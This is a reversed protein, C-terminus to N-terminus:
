VGYAAKQINHLSNASLVLQPRAQQVCHIADQLNNYAGHRLLYTVIVAVSRSYGLACAVLVPHPQQQLLQHLEDAALRLAAPDPPVMDLLPICVCLPPCHRLPYEACVDVMAQYHPAALVSGVHIRETVAASVAQGRLWYAMNLRYAFTVPLALLTVAISHRGSAQKQWYASDARHYVWALWVCAVSPWLLWWYADQLCWAALALLLAIAVYVAQWRQHSSTAKAQPLQTTNPSQRFAATKVPQNHQWPLLWLVLVGVLLGTPVDLFHHQYTTLVSIAILLLWACWLPRLWQPLRYWYFRGIILTLIIHLSPAQNFPQDFGALATFLRGTFGSTLPKDWTFTLPWLVFCAIAIAQALLLQQLLRHIQARNHCCFFAAAYFVNLTWYPVITWAAFPIHREWPWFIEPVLAQQAAWYNAGGYTSYFVLGMVALCALRYHWTLPATTNM